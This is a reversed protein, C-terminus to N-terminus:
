IGNLLLRSVKKMEVAAMEMEEKVMAAMEMEEM